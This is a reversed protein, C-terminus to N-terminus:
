DAIEELLIGYDGGQVREMQRLLQARVGPKIVMGEDPDELIEGLKQDIIEDILERLEAVSMEAVTTTM